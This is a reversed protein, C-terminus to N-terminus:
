TSSDQFDQESLSATTAIRAQIARLVSRILVWLLVRGWEGVPSHCVM